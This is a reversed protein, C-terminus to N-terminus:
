LKRWTDNRLAVFHRDGNEKSISLIRVRRDMADPDEGNRFSIRISMKNGQPIVRPM